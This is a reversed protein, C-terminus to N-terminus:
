GGGGGDGETEVVVELSLAGAGAKAPDSSGAAEVGRKGVEGGGKQIMICDSEDIDINM